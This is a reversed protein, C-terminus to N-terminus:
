GRENFNFLLDRAIVWAACMVYGEISNPKSLDFTEKQEPKFPIILRNDPSTVEMYPFEGNALFVFSPTSVKKLLNRSILSENLSYLVDDFHERSCYIRITYKGEM